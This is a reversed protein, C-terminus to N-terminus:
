YRGGLKTHDWSIYRQPTFRIIVRKPMTAGAQEKAGGDLVGAQHKAAFALRAMEFRERDDIIEATAYIMVSKLEHYALGSEVLLAARPDRELNRVKQSKRFTLIVLRDQEDIAFNMPVPHPYGGLGNSVVIMRPQSRLYARIDEPTMAIQSRRSPM